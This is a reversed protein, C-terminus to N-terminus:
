TPAPLPVIIAGDAESGFTELRTPSRLALLAVYACVVADIADEVANLHMPRTAGDVSTQTTAWAENAQVHLATEATSLSEILGLLHLMEERRGEVTRGRGRKYRLVTPLDFLSVLAAHPYVEIARRLDANALCTDLDVQESLRWARGGDAFSRNALNSPYCSANRGGFRTSVARECDRMGTSNRVILPADFAVVCPGRAHAGMWQKIEDDTRVSDMAVLHGDLTVAALGTHGRAGWALDVGIARVPHPV